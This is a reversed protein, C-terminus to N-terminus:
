NSFYSLMRVIKQRSYHVFPFVTSVLSFLVLFRTIFGLMSTLTIQLPGLMEHAPMVFTTRAISLINAIAFLVDSVTEPDSMDWRFRDSVIPSFFCHVFIDPTYIPQFINIRSASVLIRYWHM